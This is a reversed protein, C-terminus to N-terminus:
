LQFPKIEIQVQGLFIITDVHNKRCGSKKELSTMSRINQTNTDIVWQISISFYNKNQQTILFNAKESKKRNDQPM